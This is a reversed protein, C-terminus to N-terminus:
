VADTVELVRLGKGAPPPAARLRLREPERGYLVLVLVQGDVTEVRIERFIAEAGATLVRSVEIAEVRHVIVDPV